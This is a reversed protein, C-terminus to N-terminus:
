ILDKFVCTPVCYEGKENKKDKMIYLLFVNFIKREVLSVKNEMQILGSKKRLIIPHIEEPKQNNMYSIIFIFGQM